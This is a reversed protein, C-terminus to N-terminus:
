IITHTGTSHVVKWEDDFLKFVYTWTGESEIKEGTKKTMGWNFRFTFSAADKALVYIHISDIDVKEVSSIETFKQIQRDAFISYGVVMNGDPAAVFEETDAWFSLMKDINLAKMDNVYKTARDEVAKKILNIEQQNM